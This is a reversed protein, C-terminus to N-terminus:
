WGHFHFFFGELKAKLTCINKHEFYALIFLVNFQVQWLIYATNISSPICLNPQQKALPSFEYSLPLSTSLVACSTEWM